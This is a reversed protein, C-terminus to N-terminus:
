SGGDLFRVLESAIPQSTAEEYYSYAPAPNVELCVYRGDPTRIFDIGCFPLDLRTALRRCLRELRDPIEAPELSVTTDTRRAYRYDTAETAIETVIVSDGVVHVRVDTGAIRQQFQTPLAVVGTMDDDEPPSQVISRVSSISKYILPGYDGAFRRVQRPDSSVITPPTELGCAAILQQQYPKSTNSAMAGIRNVVRCDAVELWTAMIQHFTRILEARESKPDTSVEPLLEPEMPRLYVGDIQGLPYDVGDIALAGVVDAGVDLWLDYRYSERQNVVVHEIDLRLAAAVAMRMPPESPIGWFLIM